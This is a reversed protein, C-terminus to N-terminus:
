YARFEELLESSLMWVDKRYRESFERIFHDVLLPIDDIRERLSPLVISVVNIRYYLDRRMRGEELMVQPAENSSAIIRVDVPIDKTGGVRRVYSEQLVRLLKAQLPSSMSNIEDLFLTGGDAQEFLGERNEAGTFAGKMTGFLLSELLGEPIAACNQAIFPAKARDSAYHISQAFLEKGSGTDGCILVSSSTAAAKKARRIAEVFADSKGILDEFRYRRLEGRAPARQVKEAPKRLAMIQDTLAMETTFDRSIEIAGVTREGEYLPLTTNVTHITKGLHNVYQQEEVHIPRGSEIAAVMTSRDHNWDSYMESLPRGVVDEARLGEISEMAANYFVTVCDRDVIHIGEQLAELIRLVNADFM